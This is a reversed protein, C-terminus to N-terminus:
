RMCDVVKWHMCSHSSTVLLLSSLEKGRRKAENWPRTRDGKPQLCLSLGAWYSSICMGHVDRGVQRCTSCYTYVCVTVGARERVIKARHM